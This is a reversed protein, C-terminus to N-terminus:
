VGKISAIQESCPDSSTMFSSSFAPALKLTCSFTLPSLMMWRDALYEALISIMSYKTLLRLESKSKSRFKFPSVGREIADFRLFM